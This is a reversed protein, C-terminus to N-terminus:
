YKKAQTIKDENGASTMWIAGAYVMLGLVITGLLGLVVRIIKAIIIRIDTSGLAITDEIPQLGLTDQAFAFSPMFFIIGIGVLFLVNFLFHRYRMM